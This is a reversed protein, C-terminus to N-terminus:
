NVEKQLIINKKNFEKRKLSLNWAQKCVEMAKLTEYGRM